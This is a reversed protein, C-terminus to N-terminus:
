PRNRLLKRRARKESLSNYKVERCMSCGLTFKPVNQRDSPFIQGSYKLNNPHRV